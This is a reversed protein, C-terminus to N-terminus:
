NKFFFYFLTFVIVAIAWLFYFMRRDNFGGFIPIPGLFIGGAVKTSSSKETFSGIFIMIIAIFLLIIGIKTITPM